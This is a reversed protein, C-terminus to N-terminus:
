LIERSNKLGTKREECFFLPRGRASYVRNNAGPHFSERSFKRKFLRIVDDFAKESSDPCFTPIHKKLCSSLNISSLIFIILKEHNAFPEQSFNQNDRQVKAVMCLFPLYPLDAHRPPRMYRVTSTNTNGVLRALSLRLNIRDQSGHGELSQKNNAVFISIWAISNVAPIAYTEIM